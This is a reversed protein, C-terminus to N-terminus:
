QFLECGVDAGVGDPNLFEELDIIGIELLHKVAGYFIPAHDRITEVHAEEDSIGSYKKFFKVYHKASNHCHRYLAWTIPSMMNMDMECFRNQRAYLTLQHSQFWRASESMVPLFDHILSKSQCAFFNTKNEPAESDGLQYLVRELTNEVLETDLCKFNLINSGYLEYRPLILDQVDKDTQSEPNIKVTEFLQSYDPSSNAQLTKAFYRLLRCKQNETFVNDDLIEERFKVKLIL